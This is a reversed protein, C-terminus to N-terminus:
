WATCTTGSIYAFFFGIKLIKGSQSCNPTQLPAEEEEHSDRRHLPHRQGSIKGSGGGNFGGHGGDLIKRKRSAVLIPHPMALIQGSSGSNGLGSTASGQNNGTSSMNLQNNLHMSSLIAFLDVQNYHDQQFGTVHQPQNEELFNSIQYDSYHKTSSNHSGTTNSTNGSASTSNILKRYNNEIASSSKKTNESSTAM